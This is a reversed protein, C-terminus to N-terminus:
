TDAETLGPVLIVTEAVPTVRLSPLESLPIMELNQVTITDAFVQNVMNRTGIYDYQNDAFRWTDSTTVYQLNGPAFAVKKNYAVSFVGVSQPQNTNFTISDIDSINFETAVNNRWITIVDQATATFFAFLLGILLPTKKM